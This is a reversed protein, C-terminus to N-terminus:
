RILHHRLQVSQQFAGGGPWCNVPISADDDPSWPLLEADRPLDQLRTLM